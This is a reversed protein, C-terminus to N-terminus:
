YNRGKGLVAEYFAKPSNNPSSEYVTQELKRQNRKPVILYKQGPSTKFVIVNKEIMKYKVLDKSESLGVISIESGPWPNVLQCINGKRSEIHVGPITGDNKLESSILFNGRALLTFSTEWGDPVAPFLRIKGENSQILLENIAAGYISHTVLGAQIFPKAPLKNPYHSREDFIYDRQATIDPTKLSDMYISLNYWHDINYFLGQPFHQLRRIGNHMMNLVNNGMGLRAAVIPEPSIANVDPSRHNIMNVMANFERTNKQDIGILNAPFVSSTSASMHSLWRGREEAKPFISGDPYWAHAIVEGEISVTQYPIPWLNDLIHQWQKIKAQDTKLLRAAQICNSFNSIIVNRDTVPNRLNNSRPNEYPQSPFMFYENKLSDWQLKQVYFEAAKKMFPYAKQALFSTDSTFQYYEWFLGAMQSAPTFNNLMDERGWFTMSGFFDHAESWLISSEAGRKKAHEEAKPMLDFYTNLYPLMLECDNQACLGWYQQQTNWHHPTVWNRVDHNWTWLGGNFVVPFKGQSSSAMLYRRLYYINEIYDDQLHVFSQKWFNRWWDQHLEKEKVVTQSEFEDLLQIASKTPNESENSTVVSVILTLDRKTHKDVSNLELRNTSIIEPVMEEGLIRCVVSFHIGQFSEELVLDNGNILTKTSGIGSKTDKSFYGYWGPFARSGWRELSVRVKTGDELHGINKSKIQFSWVNKGPTVWTNINNETFPTKANMSVEANQLSLRGEFDDLYIWEFGPAGLDITLRAGGRLTSRDEEHSQDFLDNKNIQVEIGTNTNWVMGGLDGNGLPFGEFGEFSPTQYVIDHKSLYNSEVMFLPNQGKVFGSVLLFLLLATAPKSHKKM